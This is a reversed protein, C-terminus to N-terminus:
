GPRVRTRPILREWLGAPLGGARMAERAECLVRGAETREFFWSEAARAAPTVAALELAVEEYYSRVDLAASAPDPLADEDWPEGAALRAFAGVAAAIGDPPVAVGVLTHGRRRRSRDYADRLGLAEDVAPHLDPDFRPPVACSLPEDPVDAVVEPFEALVPVEAADLLGFAADLVRHQFAADGPVGLPRGLPFECHLARPPRMRRAHERVLSLAVTAVGHAELM